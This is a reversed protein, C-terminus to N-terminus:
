PQPPTHPNYRLGDATSWAQTVEVDTSAAPVFDDVYPSCGVTHAIDLAPAALSELSMTVPRPMVQVVCDGAVVTVSGLYNLVFVYEDSKRGPLEYADSQEGLAETAMMARVRAAEADGDRVRHVYVSLTRSTLPDRDAWACWLSNEFIDPEFSSAINTSIMSRVDFLPDLIDSIAKRRQTYTSAQARREPVMVTDEDGTAM